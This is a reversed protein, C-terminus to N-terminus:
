IEQEPQGEKDRKARAAPNLITAVCLGTILYLQRRM